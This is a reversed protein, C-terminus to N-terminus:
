SRKRNSEWPIESQQLCADSSNSQTIHKSVKKEDADM